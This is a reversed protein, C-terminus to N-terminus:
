AKRYLVDKRFSIEKIMDARLSNSISEMENRVDVPQANYLYYTPDGYLLESKNLKFKFEKGSLEATVTVMKGADKVSRYIERAAAILPPLNRQQQEIAYACAARDHLFSKALSEKEDLFELKLAKWLEEPEFVEDGLNLHAKRHAYYDKFAKAFDHARMEDTDDGCIIRRQAISKVNDSINAKEDDSLVMADPLQQEADAVIELFNRPEQTDEVLKFLDRFNAFESRCGLICSRDKTHIFDGDWVGLFSYQKIRPEYLSFESEYLSTYPHHSFTTMESVKLIRVFHDRLDSIPMIIDMKTEDNLFAKMADANNEYMIHDGEVNETEIKLREKGTYEAFWKEAAKLSSFREKRLHEHAHNECICEAILRRAQTDPSEKLVFNTHSYWPQIENMLDEDSYDLLNVTFEAIGASEDPLQVIQICQFVNRDVMKTRAYDPDTVIWQGISSSENHRMFEMITNAIMQIQNESENTAISFDPALYSLSRVDSVRRDSIASASMGLQLLKNIAKRDDARLQVIYLLKSGTYQNRICNAVNGNCVLIDSQNLEEQTVGYYDGAYETQIYLNLRSFEKPTVFHYSDEGSFRPKRTTYCKAITLNFKKSMQTAIASRGSAPLGVLLALTKHEM